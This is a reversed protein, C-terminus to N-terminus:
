PGQSDGEAVPGSAGGTPVRGTLVLDLTAAGTEDYAVVMTLTGGARLGDYEGSARSVNWTGGGTLVGTDPVPRLVSRITVVVEGSGAILRIAGELLSPPAAGEAPTPGPVFGETVATGQGSVAGMASFTGSARGPGPAVLRQTIVVGEASVWEGANETESAASRRRPM